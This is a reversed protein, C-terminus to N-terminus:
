GGSQQLVLSNNFHWNAIKNSLRSYCKQSFFAHRGKAGPKYVTFNASSTYFVSDISYKPNPM